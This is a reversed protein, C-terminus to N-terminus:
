DSVPINEFDKAVVFINEKSSDVVNKEIKITVSSSINEVVGLNGVSSGGTLFIKANKELKLHAKQNFDPLTFLITDNLKYDKSESLLTRGDHFGIQLKNGKLV